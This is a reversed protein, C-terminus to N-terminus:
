TTAQQKIDVINNTLIMALIQNSADYFITFSGVEKIDGVTIVLTAPMSSGSVVYRINYQQMNEEFFFPRSSNGRGRHNQGTTSKCNKWTGSHRTAALRRVPSCRRTSSKM